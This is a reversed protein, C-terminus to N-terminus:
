KPSSRKECAQRDLGIRVHRIRPHLDDCLPGATGSFLDLLLDGNRDFDLHVSDGMKLM